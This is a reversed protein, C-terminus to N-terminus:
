PLAEGGHPSRDRPPDRGLSAAGRRARRPDARSSGSSSSSSSGRDGVVRVLAVGVVRVADPPRTGGRRGRDTPPGRSPSRTIPPPGAPRWTTSMAKTPRGSRGTGRRTSAGRGTSRRATTRSPRSRCRTRSASRRAPPATRRRARRRGADDEEAVQPQGCAEPRRGPGAAAGDPGDHIAEVLGGLGGRRGPGARDASRRAGARRAAPSRWRAPSSERVEPREGGGARATMPTNMATRMAAATPPAQSVTRSHCCRTGNEASAATAVVSGIKSLSM